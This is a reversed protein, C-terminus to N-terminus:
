GRSEVDSCERARKARAQGQWTHPSYYNEGKPRMPTDLKRLAYRVTGGTWGTRGAIVETPLGDELYMRQFELDRKEREEPALAKRGSAM